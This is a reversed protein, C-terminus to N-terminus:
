KNASRALMKTCHIFFYFAQNYAMQEIPGFLIGSYTVCAPLLSAHNQKYPFAVKAFQHLRPCLMM